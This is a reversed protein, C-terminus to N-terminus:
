ILCKKYQEYNANYWFIIMKFHKPLSKIKIEANEKFNRTLIILIFDESGLSVLCVSTSSSKIKKAM